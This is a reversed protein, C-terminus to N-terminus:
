QVTDFITFSFIFYKCLIRCLNVNIDSNLYKIYIAKLSFIVKIFKFNYYEETSLLIGHNMKPPDLSFYIVFFSINFYLFQGGLNIDCYMYSSIHLKM